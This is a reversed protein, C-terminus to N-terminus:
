SSDLVRFIAFGDAQRELVGERCFGFRLSRSTRYGYQRAVRESVRLDQDLNLDISYNASSPRNKACIENSPEFDARTIFKAM